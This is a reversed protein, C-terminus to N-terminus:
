PEDMTIVGLVYKFVTEQSGKWAAETIILRFRHSSSRDTLPYSSPADGVHLKRAFVSEESLWLYILMIHFDNDVHLLLKHATPLM